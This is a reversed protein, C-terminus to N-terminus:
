SMVYTDSRNQWRRVRYIKLYIIGFLVITLVFTLLLSMYLGRSNWDDTFAAAFVVQTPFFAPLWQILDTEQASTYFVPNQLWGADLNALLVVGLIAVMFDSSIVGLIGGIIGYIVGILIFGLFLGAAQRIDVMGSVALSIMGGLLLIVTLFFLGRAALFSAPSLGIGICYKYYEFNRHFLIIAYYATLFGLVASGIFVLNVSHQSLLIERTEDGFFLKIPITQTGSTGEVVALFILPITVLLVLGFRNRWLEMFSLRFLYGAPHYTRDNLM